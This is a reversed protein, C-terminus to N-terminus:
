APAASALSRSCSSCCLTEAYLFREAHVACRGEELGHVTVSKPEIQQGHKRPVDMEMEKTDLMRMIAARAPSGGRGLSSLLPSGYAAAGDGHERAGASSLGQQLHEQQQQQQQALRFNSSLSRRVPSSHSNLQQQQQLADPTGARSSSSGYGQQQQQSPSTGRDSLGAACAAVARAAADAADAATSMMCASRAPSAMVAPNSDSVRRAFTDFSHVADSPSPPAGKAAATAAAAAALGAKLPSDRSAKAPDLENM